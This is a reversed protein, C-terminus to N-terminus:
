KSREKRIRTVRTVRVGEANTLTTTEFAVGKHGAAYRTATSAVANRSVRALAIDFYDGIRMSAWPYAIRSGRVDCRWRRGTHTASTNRYRVPPAPTQPQTTM